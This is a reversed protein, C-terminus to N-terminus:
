PPGSFRGDRREGPQLHVRDRGAISGVAAPRNGGACRSTGRATDAPQDGGCGPTLALSGPVLLSSLILLLAPRINM